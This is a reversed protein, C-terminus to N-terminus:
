RKRLVVREPSTSPLDVSEPTIVSRYDKPVPVSFTLTEYLGLATRLTARVMGEPVSAICEGISHNKNWGEGVTNFGEAWGTMVNAAGRGLKTFPGDEALSFVASCLLIAALVFFIVFLRKM